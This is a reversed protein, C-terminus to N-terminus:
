RNPRGTSELTAIAFYHGRLRLIPIGLLIAYIAALLGGIIAGAVLLIRRAAHAHGDHLRRHWLLRHKRLRCIRCVPSSTSPLRSLPMCSFRRSSASGIGKSSCLLVVFGAWSSASSGGDKKREGADPGAENTNPVWSGKPMFILVLIMIIASIAEQFGDSCRAGTNRGPRSRAALSQV